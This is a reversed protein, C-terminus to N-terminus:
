SKAQAAGAQVAAANAAIATIAAQAADLQAQVDEITPVPAAQVPADVQPVTQAVNAPDAKTWAVYEAYDTNNPDLPISSIVGNDDTRRIGDGEIQYQM